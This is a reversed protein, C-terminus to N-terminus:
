RGVDRDTGQNLLLDSGNRRNRAKSDRRTRMRDVAYGTWKACRAQYITLRPGKKRYAAFITCLVLSKRRTLPPSCGSRVPTGGAGLAGDM